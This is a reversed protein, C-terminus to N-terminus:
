ETSTSEKKKKKKIIRRGGLDVSKGEEVSKREVRGHARGDLGRLGLGALDIGDDAGQGLDAVRQGGDVGARGLALYVGADVDAQQVAVQALAAAIFQRTHQALLQLAHGADGDGM